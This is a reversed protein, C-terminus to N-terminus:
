HVVDDYHHDGALGRNQEITRVLPTIPQLLDVRSKFM